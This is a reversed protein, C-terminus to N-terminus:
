TGTQGGIVRLIALEGRCEPCESAIPLSVGPTQINKVKRM